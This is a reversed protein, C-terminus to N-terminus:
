EYDYWWKHDDGGVSVDCPLHFIGASPFSCRLPVDTLQGGPEVSRHHTKCWPIADQQQMVNGFIPDIESLQVWRTTYDSM